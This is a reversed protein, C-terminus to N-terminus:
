SINAARQRLKWLFRMQAEDTSIRHPGKPANRVLGLLRPEHLVRELTFDELARVQVHGDSNPAVVRWDAFM